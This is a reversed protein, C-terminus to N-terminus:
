EKDTIDCILENSTIFKRQYFDIDTVKILSKIM